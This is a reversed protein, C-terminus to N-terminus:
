VGDGPSSVFFIDETKQSFGFGQAPAVLFIGAGAGRRSAPDVQPRGEKM